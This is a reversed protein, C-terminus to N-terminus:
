SNSTKSNDARTSSARRVKRGQNLYGKISEDIQDETSNNILNKLYNKKDFFSAAIHKYELSAYKQFFIKLIENVLKSADVRCSSHRLRAILQALSQAEVKELLVRRVPRKQCDKVDANNDIINEM